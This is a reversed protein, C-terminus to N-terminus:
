LAEYHEKNNNNTEHVSNSILERESERAHAELITNEM